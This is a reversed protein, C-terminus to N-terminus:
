TRCVTNLKHPTKFLDILLRDPAMNNPKYLGQGGFQFVLRGGILSGQIEKRLITIVMHQDIAICPLPSRGHIAPGKPWAMDKEPSCENHLNAAGGEQDTQKDDTGDADDADSVNHRVVIVGVPNELRGDYTFLIEITFPRARGNSWSRRRRM